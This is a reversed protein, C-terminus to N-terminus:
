AGAYGGGVPFAENISQRSNLATIGWSFAKPEGIFAMSTHMPERRNREEAGRDCRPELRTRNLERGLLLRAYFVGDARCCFGLDGRGSAAERRALCACSGPRRRDVTRAISDKSFDDRTRDNPGATPM